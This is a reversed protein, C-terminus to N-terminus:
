AFDSLDYVDLLLPIHVFFAPTKDAYIRANRRCHQLVGVHLPLPPKIAAFGLEAFFVRVPLAPQKAFWVAWEIGMDIKFKAQVLFKGVSDEVLPETVAAVQNM